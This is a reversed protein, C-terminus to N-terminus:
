APMLEGRLPGTASDASTGAVTDAICAFAEVLREDEPEGSVSVRIQQNLANRSAAFADVGRVLIRRQALTQVVHEMTNSPPIDILFHGCNEHTRYCASELLPGVLAKRRRIEQRQLDRLHDATGDVIWRAAIEHTLPTAMWSVTRLAATVRTLLPQPAALYGIRLGTSVAKSLSSILVTREPAFRALAPPHNEAMVGHADDEVILLNFDRCVRAIEERRAESMIAATPNQLTPSCFLMRIRYTRCIRALAEPQIGEDDMDVGMIRVRLLQSAALLGPYTLAETAVVDEPSLLATLTCVLAHQAGNTVAVQAPDAVHGSHRLWRAGAARHHPLGADPTYENLSALAGPKQGLLQLTRALADLEGGPIQTNRSLDVIRRDEPPENRFLGQDGPYAIYSGDGIRSRLLGLRELEAYARSVTGVTVGLAGAMGRHSPLRTGISIEGDNVGRHLAEAIAKYLPKRRPDLSRSLFSVTVNQMNVRSLRNFLIFFLEIM